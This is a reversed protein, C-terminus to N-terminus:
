PPAGPTTMRYVRTERGDWRYTGVLQLERRGSLRTVIRDYDGVRYFAGHVIIFEVGRARLAAFAEDSPFVRMLTLLDAYARSSFGSYGNVLLDWRFTSFYMYFPELAADPAVFPLNLLVAQRGPPLAAYAPPPVRWIRKLVLTSRYEAFALLILFTCALAASRSSRLGTCIRAVGYGGLIALALGVVMAMRAPVRLGRYPLVHEHLWPYLVGNMGLSSEFALLLGLAYGIRAASLPPWLGALAILPVAVGQFLEREQGGWATTIPGFLANRAHAGLYNQPTASYFQIESVPRDGLSERAQFYPIAFPVILVLALAAGLVLPRIARVAKKLGEGILIAVGAPVLFTAFFIGYYWSSLMQLAFFLGTLLGDRMRGGAVCKHLSWLCLPMWYSMQLELHAYHMFRFPLFAFVFGAFFAAGVHHTLSRVLLFMAAGSLAFGSLLLLNYAFLQHMGLWIAPAITLSPVLMADSYALTRREPYFINADYLHLPDRPLQHAFWSLRWTSLLPDATDVSVRDMQRVQPYTMVCTLAAFLLVVGVGEVLRRRRGTPSTIAADARAQYLLALDDALAHGTKTLAVIHAAISQHIAPRRQLVHRVCAFAVAWAFPRWGSRLSIRFGAVRFIAGGHVLLFGGIGIALITLADLSHVWRSVSTSSAATKHPPIV